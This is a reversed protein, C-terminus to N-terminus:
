FFEWQMPAPPPPRTKRGCFNRIDGFQKDTIRLVSVLGEAPVMMKLRNEHVDASEGSACHRAYVSYQFMTFGDKLLNKRFLAAARRQPKTVVPLDFMAMIWMIKYSNITEYTSM